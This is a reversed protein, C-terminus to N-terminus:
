PTGGTSTHVIRGGSGVAWGRLGDTFYIGRLASVSASVQPTWTAWGDTTMLIAGAGSNSGAIWGTSANAMHIANFQYNASQSPPSWVLSDATAASSAISGQGGVAWALVNSVRAVGRLTQATISPQVLYWSAGGDHTGYIVGAGVAWGNLTDAFSVSYLAAGGFTSTAWTAGGDRTRAVFCNGAGGVIWGHRADVFRVCELNEATALLSPQQAWGLGGNTSRLLVGSKGVVWGTSASNFWVSTLEVSAGSPRVAWTAGADSTSVITGLDGVAFGTHGDSLFYVADLSHATGSTQAYWGAVAGTVYVHATDAKGNASAIILAAGEGVARALGATGITCVAPDTSRWAITVGGTAVNNTDYATAVFQRQGGVALTDAHLSLTVRSLPKVAPQVTKTTGCGVALAAAALLLAFAARPASPLLRDFRM